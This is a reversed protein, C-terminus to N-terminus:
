LFLSSKNQQIQQHKKGGINKAWVQNLNETSSTDEEFAGLGEVFEEHFPRPGLLEVMDAKDLIEKELLHKAVQVVRTFVSCM